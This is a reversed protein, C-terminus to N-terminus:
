SALAEIITHYAHSIQKFKEESGKDGGNADPHHRKVLEKYRAKVAAETVPPRLDLVAMAVGEPSHSQWHPESSATSDYDLGDLGDLGEKLKRPDIGGPGTNGGMRWTPRRWVTDDRVDAEVQADSMGAYYNWAANYHRVHELCFWHYTKLADRSIPARYPGDGPCGPWSCARGEGDPVPAPPRGPRRARPAQKTKM